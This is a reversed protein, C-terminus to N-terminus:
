GDKAAEGAAPLEVVEAEGTAQQIQAKAKLKTITIGARWPREGAIACRTPHANSVGIVV